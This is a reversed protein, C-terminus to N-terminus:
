GEIYKVEPELMVGTKKKVTKQIYKILALIDSSTAGGINVIFGAHKESVQAGGITYGKLGCQEILAGAFNGEPRKFVSGASPLDLPQKDNRRGLFDDMKARIEEKKGKMLNFRAGLILYGGGSYASHRYSLDLEDREFEGVSLDDLKIHRASLIVDKMEGGYAGGNMFVAGGVTGPIGYAFELGTLSYELATKCLSALTAGAQCEIVGSGLYKIENMCGTLRLVVGDFGKDSVLLNSGNGVILVRVGNEKCSGLVKIISDTDKPSIVAKVPGGTRFTTYDSMLADTKINCGCSAAASLVNEISRMNNM